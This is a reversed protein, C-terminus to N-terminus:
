KENKLSDRVRNWNFFYYFFMENIINLESIETLIHSYLSFKFFYLM